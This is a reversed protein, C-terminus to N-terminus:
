LIIDTIKIKKCWPHNLIDAIGNKNGLRLKPDKCLLEVKIM